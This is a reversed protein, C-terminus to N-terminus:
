RFRRCHRRQLKGPARHKALADHGSQQAVLGQFDVFDSLIMWLKWPQLVKFRAKQSQDLGNGITLSARRLIHHM